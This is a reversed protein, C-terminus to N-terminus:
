RSRSRSGSRQSARACPGRRGSASCRRRGRRARLPRRAADRRAHRARATGLVSVFRHYDFQPAVPPRFSRATLAIGWVVAITYCAYAVFASARTVEWLIVRRGEMRRQVCRTGTGCCPRTARRTSARRAAVGAGEGRDRGRDSRRRLRDGSRAPGPRRDGSRDPSARARRRREDLSAPELGVDRHGPGDRVTIAHDGPAEVAVSHDGRAAVMDGGAEVLLHPDDCREALLQAARRVSWMKAIGGLDLRGQPPVRALRFDRTSSSGTGRSRSPAPARAAASRTRRRPQERVGLGGDRRRRAALVGRRDGRALSRVGDAARDDRRERARARRRRRQHALGRQRRPLAVLAARRGGGARRARRCGAQGGAATSSAGRRGWRTGSGPRTGWREARSRRPRRPRSRSPRAPANKAEVAVRMTKDIDPPVCTYSQGSGVVVCNAGARRLAAVPVHLEDSQGDLQGPRGLVDQGVAAPRHDVAAGLEGAGRGDPPTTTRRRRPTSRRPRRRDATATGGAPARRPRRRARHRDDVAETGAHGAPPRRARRGRSSRSRRRASRSSRQRDAHGHDHEDAPPGAPPTVVPVLKRVHVYTM